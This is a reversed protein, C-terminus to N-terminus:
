GTPRREHREMHGDLRLELHSIRALILDMKANLNSGLTAMQTEVTGALTAIQAEVAALRAELRGFRRGFSVLGVAITLLSGVTSVVLVWGQLADLKMDLHYWDTNSRGVAM